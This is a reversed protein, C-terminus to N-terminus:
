NNLDLNHECLVFYVVALLLLGTDVPSLQLHQCGRSDAGKIEASVHASKGIELRM